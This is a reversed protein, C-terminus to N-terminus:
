PRKEANREELDKPIIYTVRDPWEAQKGKNWQAVPRLYGIIRSFVECRTRKEEPIVTGNALVLDDTM